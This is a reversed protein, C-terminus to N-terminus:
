EMRDVMLLKAVIESDNIHLSQNFVFEQMKMGTCICSCTMPSFSVGVGTSEVKFEYDGVELLGKINSPM